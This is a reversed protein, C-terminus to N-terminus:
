AAGGSRALRLVFMRVPPPEWFLTPNWLEHDPHGGASKLSEEYSPTTSLEKSLEVVHFPPPPAGPQQQM